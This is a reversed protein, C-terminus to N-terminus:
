FNGTKMRHLGALIVKWSLKARQSLGDWWFAQSLPFRCNAWDRPNLLQREERDQGEGSVRAVVCGQNMSLAGWKTYALLCVGHLLIHYLLLQIENWSLHGEIVKWFCSESCTVVSTMIMQPPSSVSAVSQLAKMCLQLYFWLPMM